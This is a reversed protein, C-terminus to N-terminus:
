LILGLSIYLNVVKSNTHGCVCQYITFFIVARGVLWARDWSFLFCNSWSLADQSIGSSCKPIPHIFPNGAPFQAPPRSLSLHVVALLNASNCTTQVEGCLDEGGCATRVAMCMDLGGCATRGASAFRCWRVGNSGVSKSRCRWMCIQMTARQESRWMCVRWLRDVVELPPSSSSPPRMPLTPPQPSAPISVYMEVL